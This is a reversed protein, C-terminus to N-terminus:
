YKGGSVAPDLRRLAEGLDVQGTGNIDEADYRRGPSQCPDNPRRIRTATAGLCKPAKRVPREGEVAARVPESAYGPRDATSQALVAPAALLLTSLLITTRM